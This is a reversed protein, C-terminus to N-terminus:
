NKRALKRKRYLMVMLGHGGLVAALAGISVLAAKDIHFINQILSAMLYAAAVAVAALLYIVISFIRGRRKVLHRSRGLVKPLALDPEFLAVSPVLSYQALVYVVWLACAVLAYPIAALIATKSITVFHTYISSIILLALPATALLAIVLLWANATRSAARLGRRITLRVSQNIKRTAGDMLTISFVNVLFAAVWGGLIAPIAFSVLLLLSGNVHTLDAVATATGLFTLLFQFGTTTISFTLVVLLMLATIFTDENRAAAIRMDAYASTPYYQRRAFAITKSRARRVLSKTYKQFRGTAKLLSLKLSRRRLQLRLPYYDTLENLSM